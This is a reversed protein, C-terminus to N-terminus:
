RRHRRAVPAQDGVTVRARRTAHQETSRSSIKGTWRYVHKGDKPCFDDYVPRLNPDNGRKGVIEIVTRGGDRVLRYGVYV